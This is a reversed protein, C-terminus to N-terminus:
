GALQELAERVLASKDIRQGKRMRALRIEELKMALDSTIYFTAKVLEPVPRAEQVVAESTRRKVPKGADQKVPKSTLRSAPSVASHEALVSDQPSLPSGGLHDEPVSTEQDAGLVDQQSVPAVTPQSPELGAHPLTSMVDEDSSSFLAGTGAGLRGSISERKAM